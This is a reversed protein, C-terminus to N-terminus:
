DDQTYFVRTLEVPADAISGQLQEDSASIVALGRQGNVTGLEGANKGNVVVASMSAPLDSQSEVRYLHRKSKGLYQLRAVVEQGTYCGKSFSIGEHAQWDCYQPVWADASTPQVWLWGHDIDANIWATEHTWPLDAVTRTLEDETGWHEQRGDPWQWSVGTASTTISPTISPTVSSPNDSADTTSVVTGTSPLIGVGVWDSVATMTAKFFVAYKSLHASLAEVQAQPLRLLFGQEFRLIIFNAIMRGKATCCAGARWEDATLTVVDCTLQGQLFRESDPGQVSLLGWQSLATAASDRTSGKHIDQSEKAHFGSPTIDGFAAFM